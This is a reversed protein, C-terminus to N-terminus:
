CTSAPARRVAGRRRVRTPVHWRWRSRTNPPRTTRVSRYEDATRRWTRIQERNLASVLEPHM